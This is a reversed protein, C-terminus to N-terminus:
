PIFWEFKADAGFGNKKAAAGVADKAKFLRNRSIGAVKGREFLEASEVAGSALQQTM